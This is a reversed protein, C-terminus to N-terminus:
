QKRSAHRCKTLGATFNWFWRRQKLFHTQLVQINNLLTPQRELLQKLMEAQTPGPNVAVDDCLLLKCVLCEYAMALCRRPCPLVMVGRYDSLSSSTDSGVQVIFFLAGTLTIATGPGGHGCFSFEQPAVKIRAIVSSTVASHEFPTALLLTAEPSSSSIQPAMDGGITCTRVDCFRHEGLCEHVSTSVGAFGLFGQVIFFM